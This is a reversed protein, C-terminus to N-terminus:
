SYFSINYICRPAQVTSFSYQLPNRYSPILDGKDSRSRVGLSVNGQSVFDVVLCYKLSTVLSTPSHHSFWEVLFGNPITGSGIMVFTM